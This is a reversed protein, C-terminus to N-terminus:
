AEGPFDSDRSTAARDDDRLKKLKLLSVGFFDALAELTDLRVTKSVEGREIKSIHGPTLGARHAVDAQTFDTKARAAKLWKGLKTKPEAGRPGPRTRRM